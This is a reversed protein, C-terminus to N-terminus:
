AEDPHSYPEQPLLEAPPWLALLDNVLFHDRGSEDWHHFHPCICAQQIVSNCEVVAHHAQKRTKRGQKVHVEEWVLHRLSLDLDRNIAELPCNSYYWVFLLDKTQHETLSSSLKVQFLM